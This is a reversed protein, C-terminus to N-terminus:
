IDLEEVKEVIGQKEEGVVWGGLEEEMGLNGGMKRERVPLRVCLCVDMCGYMCVVIVYKKEGHSVFCFYIFSDVKEAGKKDFFNVRWGRREKKQRV